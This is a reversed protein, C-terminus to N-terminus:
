GFRNRPRPMPRFASTIEIEAAMPGVTAAAIRALAVQSHSNAILTGIPRRAMAMPNRDNGAVTPEGRLNSQTEARSFAAVKPKRIVPASLTALAPRAEPRVLSAM